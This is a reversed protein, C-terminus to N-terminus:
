SISIPLGMASRFKAKLANLPLKAFTAPDQLAALMESPKFDGRTPVQLGLFTELCDPLMVPDACSVEKLGERGCMEKIVTNLAQHSIGKSTTRGNDDDIMIGFKIGFAHMLHMFRPINFKGSCDLIAFNGLEQLQDAWDQSLLYEFLAKETPGEVLFVKNAFFVGAREADLWLSFFYEDRNQLQSPSGSATGAVRVRGEFEEAAEALKRRIKGLGPQYVHSRGNVREFRVMQHLDDVKRSAFVSSHSSAIVQRDPQAGLDHLKRALLIQQSPHLFAEPEEYLILLFDASFDKMESDKGAKTKVANQTQFTPLLEILLNIVSRQMGQGFRSFEIEANNLAQDSFSASLMTKLIDETKPLRVQLGMNVGRDAQLRTNMPATFASFFGNAQNGAQNLSEIAAAVNHFETSAMMRGEVLLKMLERFPSPGSLKMQENQTVIAPIYILTGLKGVGVSKAGYFLTESVEEGMLAYVNDNRPKVKDPSKFYRRLTLKQNPNEKYKDALNEWEVNNLRFEIEVWAEDDENGKCPFDDDEWKIDGYFLRIANLFTTKGANNAGVLLLYDDVQVEAEIISRYNHVHVREIKM